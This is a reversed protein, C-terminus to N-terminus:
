TRNDPLYKPASREERPMVVRPDHDCVCKGDTQYRIMPRHENACMQACIRSGAEMESPLPAPSGDPNYTRQEPTLMACSLTLLGLMMPNKMHKRRYQVAKCTLCATMQQSDVPRHKM